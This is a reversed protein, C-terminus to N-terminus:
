PRRTPPAKPIPTSMALAMLKRFTPNGPQQYQETIDYNTKIFCLTQALMVAAPTGPMQALEEANMAIFPGFPDKLENLHLPKTKSIAFWITQTATM